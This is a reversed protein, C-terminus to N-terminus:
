TPVGGGKISLRLRWHPGPSTGKARQPAHRRPEGGAWEPSGFTGHPRPGVSLLWHSSCLLRPPPPREPSAAPAAAAPNPCPRPLAAPALAPAPAPAPTPAPTQLRLRPRLPARRTDPSSRRGLHPVRRSPQPEAPHPPPPSPRPASTPLRARARDPRPRARAQPCGRPGRRGRAFKRYSLSRPAPYPHQPADPPSDTPSRHQPADPPSDSLSRHTPLRHQVADPPRPSRQLPRRPAEPPRASAPNRPPTRLRSRMQSPGAKDAM